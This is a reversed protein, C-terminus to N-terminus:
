ISTNWIIIIYLLTVSQILRKTKEKL